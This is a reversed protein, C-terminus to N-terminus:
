SIICLSTGIHQKQPSILYRESRTREPIDNLWDPTIVIDLANCRLDLLQLRDCNELSEPISGTLENESLDLGELRIFEGLWDPIVGTLKNAALNLVALDLCGRLSEPMSGILANQSLNLCRLKRLQGLWDPINGTLKNGRLGLYELGRFESLWSPIEGQLNCSQLELEQLNKCEVFRELDGWTLNRAYSLNIKKINILFGPDVSIIDLLPKHPLVGSLRSLLLAYKYHNYVLVCSSAELNDYLPGLVYQQLKHREEVSINALHYNDMKCRVFAIGKAFDKHSLNEMDIWQEHLPREDPLGDVFALDFLRLLAREVLLAKNKNYVTVIRGCDSADMIGIKTKFTAYGRDLAVADDVSPMGTPSAFARDLLRKQVISDFLDLAKYRSALILVSFFEEDDIEKVLSLSYKLRRAFELNSEDPKRQPLKLSDELLEFFLLVSTERLGQRDIANGLNGQLIEYAKQSLMPLREVWVANRPEATKKITTLNEYVEPYTNKLANCLGEYIVTARLYDTLRLTEFFLSSEIKLKFGSRALPDRVRLSYARRHDGWVTRLYWWADYYGPEEQKELFGYVSLLEVVNKIAETSYNALCKNVQEEFEAVDFEFTKGGNEGESLALAQNMLIESFKIDKRRLPYGMIVVVENRTLGFNEAIFPHSTKLKEFEIRSLNNVFRLKKPTVPQILNENQTTTDGIKRKNSADLVPLAAFVLLNLLFHQLLTFKKM